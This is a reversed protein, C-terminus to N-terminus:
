RLIRYIFYIFFVYKVGIVIHIFYVLLNSYNWFKPSNSNNPLDKIWRGFYFCTRLKDTKVFREFFAALGGASLRYTVRKVDSYSRDEEETKSDRLAVKRLSSKLKAPALGVRQVLILNTSPIRTYRAERRAKRACTSCWSCLTGRSLIAPSGREECGRSQSVTGLTYGFFQPWGRSALSFVPAKARLPHPQLPPQWSILFLLFFFTLPPLPFLSYYQHKSCPWKLLKKKGKLLSYEHITSWRLQKWKMKSWKM